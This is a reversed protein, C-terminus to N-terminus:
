GRGPPALGIGAREADTMGLSSRGWSINDRLVKAPTGAAVVCPPLFGKVLARAGVISGMGVRECALLLAAQGLWVHRELVCDCPPRNIQAGSLLDHIAHMDYNRIWVDNSILADDGIVCSREEGELEISVGVASAGAGWYLLQRHSRLLLDNIQVYGDRIDDLLILSGSGLVRLSAVCTGSWARNDFAIVNGEGHVLIRVRGVPRAPDSVLILPAGGVVEIGLRQAAAADLASAPRAALADRTLGTIAPRLWASLQAQMADPIHRLM